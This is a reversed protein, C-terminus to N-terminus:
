QYLSGTNLVPQASEDACLVVLLNSVMAAKKAEDLEVIDKDNIEKLAMQVMSVAGEVIKERASIIAEAQQRRLMVAAIEPAYALYNIRAELVSIGAMELRENLKEVLERNITDGGNRLTLTETTESGLTDYAYSGAVQRLAADSQVRVFSELATMRGANNEAITQTDIEFIAKYVDEVKWVLILGVLIPNGNRDNVKIPDVNMNRARLSVKKKSYFPNVWFFGTRTFTGRYKGFFVMARAQNPELIMLGILLVSAIIILLVAAICLLNYLFSGIVAEHSEALVIFTIGAAILIISVLIMLFGNAASGQFPTEQSIQRTSHDKM